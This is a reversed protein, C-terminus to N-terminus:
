YNTLLPLTFSSSNRFFCFPSPNPPLCESWITRQSSLCVVLFHYITFMQSKTSEPFCSICINTFLPRRCPRHNYFSNIHISWTTPTKDSIFTFFYATIGALPLPRSCFLLGDLLRKLCKRDTKALDEV